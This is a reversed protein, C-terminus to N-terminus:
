GSGRRRFTREPQCAITALAASPENLNGHWRAFSVQKDEARGRVKDELLDARVLEVLILGTSLAVAGVVDDGIFDLYAVLGM